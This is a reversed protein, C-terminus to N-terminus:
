TRASTETGGPRRSDRRPGSSAAAHSARGCRRQARKRGGAVAARGATSRSSCSARSLLPPRASSPAEACPRRRRTLGPPGCQTAHAGLSRDACAPPGVALRAACGRQRRVPVGGPRTVAAAARRRAVVVRGSGGRRGRGPGRARRSVVGVGRRRGAGRARGGRRAAGLARALSVAQPQGADLRLPGLAAPRAAGAAVVPHAPGAGDHAGQAPVGPAALRWAACLLDGRSGVGGSLREKPRPAGRRFRPESGRAGVTPPAGSSDRVSLGVSGRDGVGADRSGAGVDRLRCLDVRGREGGRAVSVDRGSAVGVTPDAFAAVLPKLAQPAIHVSADTNIIIAGRLHARASNEAATKGRREPLRLLEVGRDAFGSVIKDTRDSSADSVVLIQRREAPYDLELIRELTGAIVEAENHVPITISISPWEAPPATRRPARRLSGVLKLLTPYGLYTYLCFGLAAVLLEDPTGIM